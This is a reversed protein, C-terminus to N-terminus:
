AQKRSRCSNEVSATDRVGSERAKSVPTGEIGRNFRADAMYPGLPLPLDRKTAARANMRPKTWAEALSVWIPSEM